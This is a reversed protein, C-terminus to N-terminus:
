DVRLPGSIVRTLISYVMVRGNKIVVVFNVLVLSIEVIKYDESLVVVLAVGGTDDPILSVNDM